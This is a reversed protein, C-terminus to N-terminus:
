FFNKFNDKIFTIGKLFIYINYVWNNKEGNSDYYKGVSDFAHTLEHGLIEAIAGYNLYDPINISIFPPNLIAANM